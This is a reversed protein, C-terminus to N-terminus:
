PYLRVVISEVGAKAMMWRCLIRTLMYTNFIYPIRMAGHKKKKVLTFSKQPYTSKRLAAVM